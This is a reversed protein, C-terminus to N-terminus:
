INGYISKFILTPKIMVCILMKLDANIQDNHLGSRLAFIICNDFLVWM